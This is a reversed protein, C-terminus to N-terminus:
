LVPALIHPFLTNHEQLEGAQLRGRLSPSRSRHRTPRMGSHCKRLLAKSPPSGLQLINPSKQRLPAGENHLDLSPNWSAGGIRGGERGEGEGWRPM